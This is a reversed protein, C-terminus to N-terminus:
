LLKSPTTKRQTASAVSATNDYFERAQFLGRLHDLGVTLRAGSHGALWPELHLLCLQLSYGRSKKGEQEIRDRTLRFREKVRRGRLSHRTDSSSLM